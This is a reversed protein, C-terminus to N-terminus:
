DASHQSFWDLVRRRFEEPATGMAATHRAGPVIWLTVHEPNCKVLAESHAPYINTDASGHILLVPTRTGALAQEPSAASFDVGYKLRAYLFGSWVMPVAFARQIIAPGPVRQAVRDVAVREFNAFPCEAVVASFRKENALSQLLVSAGLSEGMGYVHRPHESAEVWNVWRRVDDRERLGYTVLEGGSEGHGRNDPALVSYHNEVLLRALGMVGGRSDSIGHLLLVANGNSLEPRFFWGRLAAGDAGVIQVDNRDAADIRTDATVRKSVHVSNECLVAGAALCLALGTGAVALAAWGIRRWSM